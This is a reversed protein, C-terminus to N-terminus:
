PAPSPTRPDEPRLAPPRSPGPGPGSAAVAAVLRRALVRGNAADHDLITGGVTLDLSPVHFAFTNWFGQHGYAIWGDLEIVMLGLRYPLTGRGTMDELTQPRDLVGGTLLRRMFSTLEQADTVIGGGGFLDFSARFATVDTPGLYQHARPGAEPPPPEMYEWYTSRLGLRDYRLLDRVASGLSRGTWREILSGLLVYGSDSYAYKEGPKGVPDQWEVLLRIQEEPTWAYHPDALIRQEFRPDKTHDGFGATHSLVQALTIADVDYGDSKLLDRQAATLNAGLRDDLSLRRMECLRLVSAAVYTKTNSAIRFTHRPTLAQSEGRAEKGAAGSWDLNRSPCLVTAAVGPAQPNEALFTELVEQLRDKPDAALAARAASLLLLIATQRLLPKM